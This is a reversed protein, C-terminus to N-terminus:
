NFLPWASSFAVRKPPYPTSATPSSMSDSSPLGYVARVSDGGGSLVITTATGTGKIEWQDDIMREWQVDKKSRGM